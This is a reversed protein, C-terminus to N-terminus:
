ECELDAITFTENRTEGFGLYGGLSGVNSGKGQAGGILAAGPSFAAVIGSEYTIGDTPEPSSQGAVSPGIIGAGFGAILSTSISIRGADSARVSSSGVFLFGLGGGGRLGLRLGDSPLAGLVRCVLSDDDEKNQPLDDERVEPGTYNRSILIGVDNQSNDTLEPGIVVIEGYVPDSCNEGTPGCAIDM